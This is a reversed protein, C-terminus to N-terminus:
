EISLVFEISGKARKGARNGAHRRAHLYACVQKDAAWSSSRGFTRGVARAQKAQMRRGVQKGSFCLVQRTFYGNM